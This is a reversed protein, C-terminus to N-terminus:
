EPPTWSPLAPGVEFRRLAEYKTTTAGSQEYAELKKVAEVWEPSPNKESALLKERSEMEVYLRIRNPEWLNAYWDHIILGDDSASTKNIEALLAVIEDRKDPDNITMEVSVIAMAM